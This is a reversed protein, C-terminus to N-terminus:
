IPRQPNLYNQQTTTIPMSYIIIWIINGRTNQMAFWLFINKNDNHNLVGYIQQLLVLVDIENMNYEARINHVGIWGKIFIVLWTKASVVLFDIYSLFWIVSFYLFCVLQYLVFSKQVTEMSYKRGFDFKFNLNLIIRGYGTLHWRPKCICNITM